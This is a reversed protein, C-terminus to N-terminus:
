LLASFRLTRRGRAFKARAGGGERVWVAESVGRGGERDRWERGRKDEGVRRSVLARGGEEGCRLGVWERRWEIM